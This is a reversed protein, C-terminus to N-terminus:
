SATDHHTLVSELKSQLDIHCKALKWISRDEFVDTHDDKESHTEVFSDRAVLLDNIEDRYTGLLAALWQAALNKDEHPDLPPLHRKLYTAPHWIGRVVWKNAAFWEVPQGVIDVALGVVHTWEDSEKKKRAFIHFHGHENPAKDPTEHSHYFARWCDQAFSMGDPPYRHEMNPTTGGLIMLVPNTEKRGLQVIASLLTRASIYQDLEHWTMVGLGHQLTGRGDRM